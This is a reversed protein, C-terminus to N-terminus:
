QASNSAVTAKKWREGINKMSRGKKEQAIKKQCGMADLSVTAGKVDIQRLLKPVATIENSKGDVVLQGLPHRPAPAKQPRIFDTGAALECDEALLGQGKEFRYGGPPL